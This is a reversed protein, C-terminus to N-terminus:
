GEAEQLVSSVLCASRVGRLACVDGNEEETCDRAREHQGGDERRSLGQRAKRSGLNVNVEHRVERTGGRLFVQFHEVFDEVVRFQLRPCKFVSM